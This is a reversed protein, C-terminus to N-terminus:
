FLGEDEEPPDEEPPEEAARALYAQAKEYLTAQLDELSRYDQAAIMDKMQKGIASSDEKSFEMLRMSETIGERVQPYKEAKWLEWPDKSEIKGQKDSEPTVNRFGDEVGEEPTYPMGGMDDPFAMRFGQAIVVKKLMTRPKSAWMDNDQAYEDLYVEHVFPKQWGAITIEVVAKLDGVPRRSEYDGNYGHKKVTEVKYTGETWAKWGALRGTRDARKLYTEYGTIISLKRKDGKGYPICYIERKFPNLNFAMSVEVFQKREQPTLKEALGFSVLYDDIQSATIENKVAVANEM